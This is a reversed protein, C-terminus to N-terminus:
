TLTTSSTYLPRATVSEYLFFRRVFQWQGVDSEENIAAGSQDRYNTILIPLPHLTTQDRLDSAPTLSVVPCAWYVVFHLFQTISLICLEYFVPTTSGAALLAGASITCQTYTHTHSPPSPLPSLPSPPAITLGLKWVDFLLESNCYTNNFYSQLSRVNCNNKIYKFFHKYTTLLM